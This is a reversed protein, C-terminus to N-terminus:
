VRQPIRQLFMEFVERTTKEPVYGFDEKLKRNSLVPRYRLFRVQEPGYQTLGFKKLVTLSFRALWAPVPIYPKGMMSAMEALTLVGDGAVNYIGELDEQIGRLICGVVDKDWIFVFPSSAGSIGLIAPKQFLSTIQNDASDGLVTCLRLVLQRLEPHERRYRALLEEVQRKHDSYAFEPNGRLADREQLPVPNDRHYGYAAGSSTLIIKRARAQVCARVVNSTGLVDVSYAFERGSGKGPTVISALHVVTTVRGQELIEVLSESRVDLRLYRVGPRREETPVQRVDGALIGRFNEKARSLAEVLQRGIYGSAGTVLICEDNRVPDSEVM